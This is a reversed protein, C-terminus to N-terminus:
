GGHIISLAMRRVHGFLHEYGDWDSYEDLTVTGPLSNFFGWYISYINESLKSVIPADQAWAVSYSAVSTFLMFSVMVARKLWLRVPTM